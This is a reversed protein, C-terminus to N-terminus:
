QSLLLLSMVAVPQAVVPEAAVPQAVVPEAAVPQAVVPEAAVPQAVVPEAAVPQLSQLTLKLHDVPIRPGFLGFWKKRTKIEPSVESNSGHITEAVQVPEAVGVPVQVEPEQIQPSPEM